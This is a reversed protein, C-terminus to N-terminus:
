RHWGHAVHSMESTPRLLGYRTTLSAAELRSHVGLKTLVSQVHTRVTTPCVGLRKAMSTTDLGEVLLALCDCERQTLYGALRRLEPREHTMGPRPRLFSGEVVIEGDAVRRIVDILVRAGRSKHVYGAAGADLARRMTDADGQGTLMVVKTQPTLESLMEIADVGEGDPYRNGTICMDPRLASVCQLMAGCSEVTALVRHGSQTLLVSLADLVVVQDDALVIDVANPV